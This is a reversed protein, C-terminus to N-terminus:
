GLDFFKSCRRDFNMSWMSVSLPVYKFNLDRWNVLTDYEDQFSKPMDGQQRKSEWSRLMTELVSTDVLQQLVENAREGCLLAAIAALEKVPINKVTRLFDFQDALETKGEARVGIARDTLFEDVNHSSLVFVQTFLSLTQVSM